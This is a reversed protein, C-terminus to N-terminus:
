GAPAPNPRRSWETRTATFDRVITEALALIDDPFISMGQRRSLRGNGHRDGRHRRPPRRLRDKREDDGEGLLSRTSIGLFESLNARMAERHPGIKPAEAILSVDANMITGGHDRVIQQRM